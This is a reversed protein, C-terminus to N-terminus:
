PLRARDEATEINLYRGLFEEQRPLFTDASNGLLHDGGDATVLEVDVSSDELADRYRTAQRYPIVEDATGHYLLVPPDGEDVHSIPSANRAAEPVADCSDGLFNTTTNATCLQESTLDYIGSISVVAEVAVSVDPHFDTPQFTPQQPASAVLSVLHGGASEGVLAIRDPDIGHDDATARLWKIASVVDQVAAPYTAEKSLRYQITAVVMGARAMREAPPYGKDNQYWGGGHAHILLPRAVDDAPRFLDLKLERDPTERFVVDQDNVIEADDPLPTTTDTTETPETTPQDTEEPVTSTGGSRNCGATGIVVGGAIRSLLNRRSYSRKKSSM